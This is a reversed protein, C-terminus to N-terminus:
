MKMEELLGFMGNPPGGKSPGKVGNTLASKVKREKKTKKKWEEGFTDELDGVCVDWLGDPIDATPSRTGTLYLHFMKGSFLHACSPVRESLLLIQSLEEISELTALIQATLQVNRDVISPTDEEKISGSISKTPKLSFSALFAQAESKTWREKEREKVGENSRARNDFTRLVWRLTLVVMLHERRLSTISPTNSGLAHLFVTLRDAEPRLQLLTPDQLDFEPTSLPSLLDIISPATVEESAVRTGRRVYEIITKQRPPQQSRSSSVSKPAQPGDEGPRRLRELEGRLLALPDEDNGSESGGESNEEVVDILEDDDNEGDVSLGEDATEERHEPLGISDALIAYTWQRIPRGLSRSVNELDPNELFIRPWSTGTSLIDMTKPALRGTRYASIYLERVTERMVREESQEDSIEVSLSWSLMPLLPCMDPPHLACFQTPWLGPQDQMEADYKPIAYQLTADVITNVIADVEGSGMASPSRILLADVAKEILDMVTGVQHKAKRKQSSASLISTLTSAVHTIRQSLTLQKQFFLTQASRHSSSPQNSYDNGVLAGLLPLLSVPLEFHSALVSPEYVLFFLGLNHNVDPPILGRGLGPDRVKKGKSNRVTQFEGDDLDNQDDDVISARWVMEEFPVYGLYGDTNFVMFDSDNAVIYGGVRGALEIAYPDAEEDAFHIELADTTELITQLAHVCTPYVLPPIIRSEYLFYRTSRSASSTRFFLLSPQVHSEM